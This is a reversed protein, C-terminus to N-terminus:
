TGKYSKLLFVWTCDALKELPLCTDHIIMECLDLLRLLEINPQKYQGINFMCLALSETKLPEECASM